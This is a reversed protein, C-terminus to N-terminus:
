KCVSSIYTLLISKTEGFLIRSIYAFGEFLIIGIVGGALNLIVDKIDFSMTVAHMFYIIFFQIFEISFSILIVIIWRKKKIMNKSIFPLLIGIPLTLLINGVIQTIGGMKAFNLTLDIYNDISGWEMKNVILIPFYALKIASNFYIAMIIAFFYYPYSTKQKLGKWLVVSAYILNIPVYFFYGYTFFM